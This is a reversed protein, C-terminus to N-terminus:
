EDELIEKLFNWEEETLVLSKIWSVERVEYLYDFRYDDCLIIERYVNVRRKKILDFAKAKKKLEENEKLANKIIECDEDIALELANEDDIIGNTAYNSETNYDCWNSKPLEKLSYSASQLRGLAGMPTM